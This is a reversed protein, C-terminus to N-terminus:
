RSMSTLVNGCGCTCEILFSRDLCKSCRHPTTILGKSYCEHNCYKQDKRSTVITQKCYPCVMTLLERSRQKAEAETTKVTLLQPSPHHHINELENTNVTLALNNDMMNVVEEMTNKIGICPVM